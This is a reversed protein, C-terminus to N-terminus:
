YAIVVKQNTADYACAISGTSASRFVVAAGFSISTGSVTGVIATGYNSNAVDRYAIVVKQNTADYACAIISTSASRFVVATGTNPQTVSVTGDSNIVVPAGSPLTGKAVAQITAGASAPPQIIFSM